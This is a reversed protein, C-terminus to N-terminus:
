QGIDRVEEEVEEEVEQIGERVIAMMREEEATLERKSRAQDLLKKFQVHVLQNTRKIDARVKGRFHRARQILYWVWLVCLVIVGAV